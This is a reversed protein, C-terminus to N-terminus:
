KSLVTVLGILAGIVGTLAGVIGGVIAATMQVQELREKREKRLASRLEAFAHPLLFPDGTDRTRDWNEENHQPVMISRRYAQSLLHRTQLVKIEDELLSAEFWANHEIGEIEERNKKEAKAKKIDADYAASVRRQDREIKAIKRRLKLGEFM